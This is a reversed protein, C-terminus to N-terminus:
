PEFVAELETGNNWIFEEWAQSIRWGGDTRRFRWLYRGGMMYVDTPSAGPPVGTFILNATGRAQDGDVTFDANVILHQTEAWTGEMKGVCVDFIEQRGTMLGFSNPLDFVADETFTESWAVWQRSDALTLYRHTLASLSREDEVRALRSLLGEAPM